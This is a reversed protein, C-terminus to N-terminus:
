SFDKCLIIKKISFIRIKNLLVKWNLRTIGSLIKISLIDGAGQKVRNPPLPPPGPSRAPTVAHIYTHHVTYPKFWGQFVEM